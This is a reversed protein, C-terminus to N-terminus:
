SEVGDISIDWLDEIMTYFEEDSMEVGNMTHKGEKFVEHRLEMLKILNKACLARRIKELEKLAKDGLMFGDTIKSM